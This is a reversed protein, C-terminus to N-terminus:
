ASQNRAYAGYHARAAQAYAEGAEEKTRFYGLSISRRNVTIRAQWGRNHAHWRVGKTGSRNHKRAGSNANNESRTAIRINERRNDLKNQNSHDVDLGPNPNLIMRHMTISVRRGHEDRANTVAYGHTSIFWRHPAVINRDEPSIVAVQGRGRRGSMPIVAFPQTLPNLGMSECVKGYYLAREDPSLKSLDGKAIVSEMIDNTDPAPRLATTATM